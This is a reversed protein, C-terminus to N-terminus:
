GSGVSYTRGKWRVRGTIHWWASRVMIVISLLVSAPYLLGLLPSMGFMWWVAGFLVVNAGILLWGLPHGMAAGAIPLACAVALMLAILLSRFPGRTIESANKSFGDLADATSEYMRVTFASRADVIRVRRGLRKTMAALQMDEVFAGKARQHPLLELYDERRLALAQGNAFAFGPNPHNEALWLPLTTLVGFPVMGVILADGVGSAGIKPLVTVLLAQTDAFAAAMLALFQPAPRTDADLFLLWEGTARQGLQQCAWTKGVWGEPREASVFWQAGLAQANEALWEGTGDDSRDDCVIVELPEHSQERLAAILSPLNERENRAPILVSIKVTSGDASPRRRRWYVLNAVLIVVQVTTLAALSGLAITM